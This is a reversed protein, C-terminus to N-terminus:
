EFQILIANKEIKDGTGVLIKQVIGDTPSKIMNEMKMAELVLLNDGKSVEKGQEILVKLVLGPMPAKLDKVKNSSSYDMGLKKLLQDYQDEMEVHYTTGNVKLELTKNIRDQELIEVNFSKNKYIVSSHRNKIFRYDFDVITHDITVEEGKIELEYDFKGNVKVKM